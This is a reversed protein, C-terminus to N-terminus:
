APVCLLAISLTMAVITILGSLSRVHQTSPIRESMKMSRLDIPRFKFRLSKSRRRDTQSAPPTYIDSIPDRTGIHKQKKAVFSLM